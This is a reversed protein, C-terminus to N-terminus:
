PRLFDSANINIPDDETEEAKLRKLKSRVVKYAAGCGKNYGLKYTSEQEGGMKLKALEVEDDLWDKLEDIIEETTM